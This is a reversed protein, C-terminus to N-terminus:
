HNPHKPWYGQFPIDYCLKGAGNWDSGKQSTFGTISSFYEFNAKLWERVGPKAVVYLDTAHYAFDGDGLDLGANRLQQELEPKDQTESIITRREDVM